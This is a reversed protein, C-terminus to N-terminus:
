LRSSWAVGPLSDDHSQERPMWQRSRSNLRSTKSLIILTMADNMESNSKLVNRVGGTGTGTGVGRAGACGAGWSGLLERVGPKKADSGMVLEWSGVVEGWSGVGSLEWGGHRDGTLLEGSGLELVGRVGWSELRGVDGWSGAEQCSGLEGAGLGGATWGGEGVGSGWRSGWSRAEQCWSGLGWSM